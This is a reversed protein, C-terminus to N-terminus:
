KGAMLALTHPGVPAAQLSTAQQPKGTPDLPVPISIDKTLGPLLFCQVANDGDLGVWLYSHDSSIALLNPSNGAAPPTGADVGTLPAVMVITNPASPDTSPLSVYLM